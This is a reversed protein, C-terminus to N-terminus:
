FRCRSSQRMVLCYGTQCEIIVLADKPVGLGGNVQLPSLRSLIILGMMMMIHWRYDVPRSDHIEM